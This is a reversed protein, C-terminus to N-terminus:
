YGLLEGTSTRAISFLIMQDFGHWEGYREKMHDYVYQFGPGPNETPRGFRSRAERVWQDLDRMMGYFDLFDQKTGYGFHSPVFIRFDLESVRQMAALLGPRYFDPVGMPPLTKVLGFDATWLLEEQPVHVAYLTDTHSKGLYLLHLTLGGFRVTEDGDLTRTPPLIDPSALDRFYAACREHCWVEEPDLLRGGETHDKHYHSYLLVKVPRGGSSERIADRLLGAAEVNFPDTAFVGEDTVVFINRYWSWRFTYVHDTLKEVSSGAYGPPNFYPELERTAQTLIERRVDCAAGALGAVLLAALAGRRGAPVFRTTM